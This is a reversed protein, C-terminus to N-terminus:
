DNTEQSYGLGSMKNDQNVVLWCAIQKSEKRKIKKYEKLKIKIRLENHSCFFKTSNL